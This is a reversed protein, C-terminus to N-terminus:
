EVEVSPVEIMMGEDMVEDTYAEMEEIAEETGEEVVEEMGDEVGELVEEGEAMVDEAVVEGDVVAEEIVASEVVVPTEVVEGVNEKASGKMSGKDKAFSVVSFGAVVAVALVLYVVKKM